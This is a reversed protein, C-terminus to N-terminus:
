SGPAACVAASTCHPKRLVVSRVRANQLLQMAEFPQRPAPAAHATDTGDDEPALDEDQPAAFWAKHLGACLLAAQLGADVRLLCAQQAVYGKSFSQVPASQTRWLEEAGVSLQLGKLQPGHLPHLGADM